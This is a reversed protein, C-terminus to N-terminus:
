VFTSSKGVFLCISPWEKFIICVYKIFFVYLVFFPVKLMGDIKKKCFKKFTLIKEFWFMAWVVHLPSPTLTFLLVHSMGFDYCITTKALIVSWNLSDNWIFGKESPYQYNNTRLTLATEYANITILSTVASRWKYMKHM